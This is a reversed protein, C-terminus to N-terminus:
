SEAAAQVLFLKTLTLVSREKLELASALKMLNGLQVNGREARLITQRSLKTQKALDRLSLNREERHRRLADGLANTKKAKKTM